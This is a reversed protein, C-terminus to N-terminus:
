KNGKSKAQLAADLSRKVSESNPNIRLAERLEAIGDDLRGPTGVLVVGMNAHAASDGPNLQINKALMQMAEDRKGAGVLAAAMGSLAASSHSDLKFAARFEEVAELYERNGLETNALDLHARALGPAYSAAKVFHEEADARLGRRFSELGMSSYFRYLPNSAAEPKAATWIKQLSKETDANMSPAGRRFDILRTVRLCSIATDDLKSGPPLSMVSGGAQAHWAGFIHGLEHALAAAKKAEDGGPIDYVLVRPDFPVALGPEAGPQASGYLGLEIWDGSSHFGELRWRNVEPPQQLDPEWESAGAMEFQLDAPKFMESVVRIRSDIRDRWGPQQRVEPGAAVQIHLLRPPPAKHCGSLFVACVLLWRM